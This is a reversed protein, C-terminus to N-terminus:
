GRSDGPVADLAALLAIADALDRRAGQMAARPYDAEDAIVDAYDGALAALDAKVAQRARHWNGGFDRKHM